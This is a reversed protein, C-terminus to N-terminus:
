GSVTLGHARLMARLEDYMRARWRIVRPVFTHHAIDIRGRNAGKKTTRVATGVEYVNAELGANNIVVAGAFGKGSNPMVVVELGDQLTGDKRPYAGRIDDEAGHANSLVIREADGTLADPLARLQQRLEALGDFVLRNNSM